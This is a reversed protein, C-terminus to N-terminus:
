ETRLAVSPDVRAARRIPPLCAVVAVAAVSLVIAVLAGPDTMAVGDDGTRPQDLHVVPLVATTRISDGGKM